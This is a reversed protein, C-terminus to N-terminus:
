FFFSLMQNSWVGEILIFFHLICLIMSVGPIWSLWESTKVKRWIDFTLTGRATYKILISFSFESNASSYGNLIWNEYSRKWFSQCVGCFCRFFWTCARLFFQYDFESACVLQNQQHFDRIVVSEWNIIEKSVEEAALVIFCFDKLILMSADYFIFIQNILLCCESLVFLYSLISLFGSISSQTM